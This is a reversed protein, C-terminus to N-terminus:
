SEIPICVLVDFVTALNVLGSSGGAFLQECSSDSKISVIPTKCRSDFNSTM